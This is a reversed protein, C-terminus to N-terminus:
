ACNIVCALKSLPLYNDDKLHDPLSPNPLWPFDERQQALRQAQEEAESSYRDGMSSSAAGVPDDDVGYKRKKVPLGDKDSVNGAQQVHSVYAEAM